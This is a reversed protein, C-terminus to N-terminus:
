GECITRLAKWQRTTLAKGTGTAQQRVVAIRDEFIPHTSLLDSLGGEEGGRRSAVREFFGALGRADIDAANLVAVAMRDADLEDERTYSTLVLWQAFTGAASEVKSADGLLTGVLLSLGAARLVGQMPHRRVVHAMEHALVGAVEEPTQAFDLLGELLVIRGGPAAFANLTSGPLVQVQIPYPLTGEPGLHAHLATSLRDTLRSLAAAGAAGSCAAAGDAMSDVVSEGLREEWAAPVLRALPAFLRPGQWYALALVLALVAVAAFGVRLSPRTWFGGQLRPGGLTAIRALIAADELTLLAEGRERHRLRVPGHGHVEEAVSLGRYPWPELPLGDARQLHLANRAPQVSVAHRQATLGDTYYGPFNM